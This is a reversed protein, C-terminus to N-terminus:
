YFTSSFEGCKLAFFRVFRDFTKDKNVFWVSRRRSVVNHLAFFGIRFMNVFKLLNILSIGGRFGFLM